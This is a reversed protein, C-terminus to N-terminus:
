SHLKVVFALVADSLSKTPLVTSTVNSAPSVPGFVTSNSITSSSITSFVSDKETDKAEDDKDATLTPSGDFTLIRSSSPSYDM